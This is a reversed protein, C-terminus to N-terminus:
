LDDPKQADKYLIIGTLCFVLILFGIFELYQPLFVIFVLSRVDLMKESNSSLHKNNSTLRKTNTTLHKFNDIPIIWGNAWNNVM